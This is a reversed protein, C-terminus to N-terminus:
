KYYELDHELSPTIRIPQDSQTYYDNALTVCTDKNCKIDVYRKEGPYNNDYV